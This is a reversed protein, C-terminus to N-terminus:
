QEIHLSSIAPVQQTVCHINGGGLLIDRSYVSVVCHHPFVEELVRKAREDSVPDGFAPMIVAKNAILFNVYSAPLLRGTEASASAADGATLGSAEEETVLLPPDPVPLRHVTLPRDQADRLTQLRALADQSSAYQPHDPNDTWALVVEGPRAFMCLNDVHGVTHISHDSRKLCCCYSM